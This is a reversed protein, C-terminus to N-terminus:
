GPKRAQIHFQVAFFESAEEQDLTLHPYIQRLQSRIDEGRVLMQQLSDYLKIFEPRISEPSYMKTFWAGERLSCEVQLIELQSRLFLSRLERLTFYRLHTRDLLGWDTYTWNGHLLHDIVFLNRVNPISCLVMGGPKLLRTHYVLVREPDRLHEISDGYILCDFYGAEYPLEFREADECFVATLRKRAAEAEEPRIEIGVYEAALGKELIIQGLGGNACGLELIKQTGPPIFKILNVSLVEEM